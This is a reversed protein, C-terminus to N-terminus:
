GIVDTQEVHRQMQKDLGICWAIAAELGYRIKISDDLFMLTNVSAAAPHKLYTVFVRCTSIVISVCNCETVYMRM